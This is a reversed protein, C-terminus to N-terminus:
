VMAPNLPAPKVSDTIASSRPLFRGDGLQERREQRRRSNSSDTRFHRIVRERM